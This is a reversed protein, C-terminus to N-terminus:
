KSARTPRDPKASTAKTKKVKAWRAQVAKRAAASREEPTMRSARVKGGKKGGKRGFEAFQQRASEPLKKYVARIAESIAQKVSAKM